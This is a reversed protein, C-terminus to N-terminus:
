FPFFASSAPALRRHTEGRSQLAPLIAGATGSDRSADRTPGPDIQYTLRFGIITAHYVPRLTTWNLFALIFPFNHNVVISDIRPTSAIKATTLM